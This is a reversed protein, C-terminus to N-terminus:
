AKGGTILKLQQERQQQEAQAARRRELGAILDEPDDVESRILVDEQGIAGVKLLDFLLARAEAAFAPSSSHADVTLTMDDDLDDFTFEVRVLGPSPPIAFPDSAIAKEVGAAAEPVWASLKDAIHAKALDLKLGALQEVSREILLARDKFRPSFMRVLTEAHAQSRVGAEGRGRAIPPLGGMDDFMREYEHLSGWLNEDITPAMPEIKANPNTDVIYGGPKRYRSLAQQNVGSGGIFRTPPDEQRRLLANIGNVRANIAEQLLAVRTVEPTGWFYGDLPSPCFSSFPHKGKLDTNEQQTVPDWALANYLQYKGILMVDEGVLQFTAWDGRETDWVWAEDLRVVESMVGPAIQPNAGGMWDVIGRQNAPTGGAAQFPYIGGVVVQNQAGNMDSLTDRTMITHRKARALLTDRQPHSWLLRELQSLSIFMSHTFAEMDEDLEGHTEHLVGMAEPQVLVSKLRDGSPTEKAFTRGKVLSWCVAASILTDTDTSRCIQRLKAAAAQGKARSLLNPVDPDGIHFRLSVPSYLLSELDDLYSFTKNFIAASQPSPSGYMFYNKFYAGRQVRENQSVTCQDVIERVFKEKGRGPIRM